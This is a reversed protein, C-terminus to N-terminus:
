KKHRDRSGEKRKEKKEINSKKEQKKKAGEEFGHKQSQAIAAMRAATASISPRVNCKGCKLSGM